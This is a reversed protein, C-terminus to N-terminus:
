GGSLQDSPSKFLVTVNQSSRLWQRQQERFWQVLFGRRHEGWVLSRSFCACFMCVCSQAASVTPMVAPQKWCTHLTKKKNIYTSEYLLNWCLWHHLMCFIFLLYNFSVSIYFYGVGTFFVHYFLGLYQTCLTIIVTSSNLLLHWTQSM